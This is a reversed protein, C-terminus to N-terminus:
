SIDVFSREEEKICKWASFACVGVIPVTKFEGGLVSISIIMRLIIVSMMKFPIKARQNKLDLSRIRGINRCIRRDDRIDFM